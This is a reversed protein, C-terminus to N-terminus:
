NRITFQSNHIELNQEANVGVMDNEVVCVNKVSFDLGYGDDWLTQSLPVSITAGAVVGLVLDVIFIALATGTKKVRRDFPPYASYSIFFAVTALISGVCATVFVGVFGLYNTQVEFRFGETAIDNGWARVQGCAICGCIFIFVAALAIAINSQFVNFPREGKRYRVINLLFSVLHDIMVFLLLFFFWGTFRLMHINVDAYTLESDGGFMVSILGFGSHSLSMERGSANIYITMFPTCAFVLVAVLSICAAIIYLLAAIRRKRKVAADVVFGQAPVPAPAAQTAAVPAPATGDVSSGCKHCFKVAGELEAGCQRCFKKRPAQPEEATEIKAGCYKCFKADKGVAAGCQECFSQANETNVNEEM